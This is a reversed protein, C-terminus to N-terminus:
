QGHKLAKNTLCEQSIKILVKFLHQNYRALLFSQNLIWLYLLYVYLSFVMGEGTKWDLENRLIQGFICM